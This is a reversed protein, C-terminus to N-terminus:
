QGGGLPRGGTHASVVQRATERFLLQAREHLGDQGIQVREFAHEGLVPELGPDAADAGLLLHEQEITRSARPAPGVRHHLAERM